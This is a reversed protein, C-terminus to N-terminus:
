SAELSCVARQLQWMTTKCKSHVITCEGSTCLLRGILQHHEYRNSVVPKVASTYKYKVGFADHRRVLIHISSNRRYPLMTLNCLSVCHPHPSVFSTLHWKIPRAKLGPRAKLKRGRHREQVNFIQSVLKSLRSRSAEQLFYCCQLWGANRPVMCIM